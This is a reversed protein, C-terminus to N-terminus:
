KGTFAPKRKEKNAIIGERTDASAMCAAGSTRIKEDDMTGDTVMNVIMKSHAISLPANEAIEGAFKRVFDELEADPLMYEILGIDRAEEASFRRAAFLIAKAHGPGVLHTLAQIAELPYAFSLKAAPISYSSSKNAIRIDARMAIMLGGGICYGEIMAVIPKKFNALADRQRTGADVFSRVKDAGDLRRAQSRLDAGACFAKGGAGRMIVVRIAPDAQFDDLAEAVDLAMDETFSNHKEPNNFILWAIGGEKKMIIKDGVFAM